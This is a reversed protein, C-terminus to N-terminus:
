WFIWYLILAAIVIPVAAFILNLGIMLILIISGGLWQLGAIVWEKIGNKKPEFFEVEESAATEEKAKPKNNKAVFYIITALFAIAGAYRELEPFTFAFLMGLIVSGGIYLALFLLVGKVIKMDVMRGEYKGNYLIITVKQFFKNTVQFAVVVVLIM